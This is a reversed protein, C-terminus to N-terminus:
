WADHCIALLVNRRPANVLLFLETICVVIKNADRLEAYVNPFCMARECRGAQSHRPLPTFELALVGIDPLTPLKPDPSKGDEPDNFLEHVIRNTWM